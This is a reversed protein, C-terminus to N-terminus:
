SVKGAYPVAGDNTSRAMARVGSQIRDANWNESPKWLRSAEKRLYEVNEACDAQDIISNGAEALSRSADWGHSKTSGVVLRSRDQFGIYMSGLISPYREVDSGSAPGSMKLVYGKTSLCVREIMAIRSCENFTFGVTCPLIAKTRLYIDLRIFCVQSLRM